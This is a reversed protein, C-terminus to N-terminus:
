TVNIISNLVVLSLFRSLGVVLDFHTQAVRFESRMIAPHHSSADKLLVVKICQKANGQQTAPYIICPWLRKFIGPKDIILIVKRALYQSM